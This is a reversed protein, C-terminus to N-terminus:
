LLLGDSNRKHVVENRYNWLKHVTLLLNKVLNSAWSSASRLSNIDHYHTAHLQQFLISFKGEMFNDRGITDQSVAASALLPTTNIFHMSAEGKSYNVNYINKDTSM